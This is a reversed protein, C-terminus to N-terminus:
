TDIAMIVFGTEEGHRHSYHSIAHTGNVVDMRHESQMERQLHFIVKNAWNNSTRNDSMHNILYLVKFGLACKISFVEDVRHRSFCGFRVKSKTFVTSNM